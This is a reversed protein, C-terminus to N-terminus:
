RKGLIYKDLAFGIQNRLKEKAQESSIASWHNHAGDHTEYEILFFYAYLYDYNGFKAGSGGSSVLVEAVDCSGVIFGREIVADRIVSYAAAPGFLQARHNDTDICVRRSEASVSSVSSGLLFLGLFLSALMRM